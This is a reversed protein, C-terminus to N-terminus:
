FKVDFRGQTVQVKKSSNIDQLTAEFRGSLIRKESDFYTVTVSGNLASDSGFQAGDQYYLCGVKNKTKGWYSGLKYTTNAALSVSDFAIFLSRSINKDCDNVASVTIEPRTTNFNYFSTQLKKVPSIGGLTKCPLFQANDVYCGFTNAGSTTENPFDKQRDEKKCSLFSLAILISFSFLAKFKM